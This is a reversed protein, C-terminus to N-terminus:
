GRLYAKRTGWKGGKPCPNAPHRLCRVEGIGGQDNLYRFRPGRVHTKQVTPHLRLFRCESGGRGDGRWADNRAHSLRPMVRFLKQPLGSKQGPM